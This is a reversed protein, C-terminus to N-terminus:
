LFGTEIAHIKMQERVGKTSHNWMTTGARKGGLSIDKWTKYPLNYITFQLNKRYKETFYGNKGDWKGTLIWTSYMQIDKNIPVDSGNDDQNRKEGDVLDQADKLIGNDVAVNKTTTILRSITRVLKLAQTSLAFKLLKGGFAM